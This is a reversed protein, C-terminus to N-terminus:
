KDYTIVEGTWRTQSDPLGRNLEDLYCQLQKRGQLVGTHTLLLDADKGPRKHLLIVWRIPTHLDRSEKSLDGGPCDGGLCAFGM